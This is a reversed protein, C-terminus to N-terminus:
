EAIAYVKEMANDVVKQVTHKSRQYGNTKNILEVTDGWSRGDIMKYTVLTRELENLAHLWSDVYIIIYKKRDLETRLLTMEEEIQKVFVSSRGMAIRMALNGVPDGVGSGHPMGTIAQSLSVQDGVESRRNKDLEEQLADLQYRLYACRAETARYIKMTEDVQDRTM